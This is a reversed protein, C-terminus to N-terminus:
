DHPQHETERAALATNIIEQDWPYVASLPDDALVLIIERAKTVASAPILRTGTGLPVVFIPTPQDADMCWAACQQIDLGDADIGTIVWWTGPLAVTWPKRHDLPADSHNTAM